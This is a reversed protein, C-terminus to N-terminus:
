KVEKVSVISTLVGGFKRGTSNSNMYIAGAANSACRIKVTHAGSTVNGNYFQYVFGGVVAASGLSPSGAVGFAATDSDLFAACNIAVNGQGMQLNATVLIKGANINQTYACTAAQDGETSTPITDDLPISTGSLTVAVTDTCITEKLVEGTNRLAYTQIAEKARLPTILKVNDTGAQAEAQSAIRATNQQYTRLPSMFKTSNSGAEAEAQTARPTGSAYGAHAQASFLALALAAAITFNKFM